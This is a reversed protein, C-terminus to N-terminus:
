GSPFRRRKVARAM